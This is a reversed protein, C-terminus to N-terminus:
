SGSWENEVERSALIQERSGDDDRLKIAVKLDRAARQAGARGKGCVGVQDCDSRSGAIRVISGAAVLEDAQAVQQEVRAVGGRPGDADDRRHTDANPRRHKHFAERVRPNLDITPM